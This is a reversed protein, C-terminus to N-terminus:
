VAAVIKQWLVDFHEPECFPISLSAHVLDAPSLAVDKFKAVQTQLRARKEEPVKNMLQDIAAPEGDVALVSWGHDLMVVSETGDGCGLDIAFRQSNGSAEEFYTLAGLLLKRPARGQIKQYYDAWTVEEESM